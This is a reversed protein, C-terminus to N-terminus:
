IPPSGGRNNRLPGKLRGAALGFAAAFAQLAADTGSVSLRDAARLAQLNGGRFFLELFADPEAKLHLDPLWIPGERLDAYGATLHYQFVRGGARLEATMPSTVGRYRRKLAFLGWALNRRDGPSPKALMRWGWQGLALLVPELERGAETLTYSTGGAFGAAAQKAILGLAEMDKLRAALLNTTLGDLGRLIEGYRRPGLMLDRAILLTWREGLVDMAKAIGCFQHYARKEPLSPVKRSKSSTSKAVM